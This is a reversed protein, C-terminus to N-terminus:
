DIKKMLLGFVKEIFSIFYFRNGEPMNQKKVKEASINLYCHFSM